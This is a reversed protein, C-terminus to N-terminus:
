KLELELEKMWELRRALLVAWMLETRPGMELELGRALEEVWALAM